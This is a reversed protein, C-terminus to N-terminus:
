KGLGADVFIESPVDDLFVLIPECRLPLQPPGLSDHRVYLTNQVLKLTWAGTFVNYIVGRVFFAQMGHPLKGIGLLRLESAGVNSISTARLREIAIRRTKETLAQMHTADLIETTSFM